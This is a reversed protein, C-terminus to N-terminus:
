AQEGQDARTQPRIVLRTKAPAPAAPEAPPQQANGRLTALVQDKPGDMVIAGGDVVIVRDVADLVGM